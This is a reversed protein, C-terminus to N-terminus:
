GCVSISEVFVWNDHFAPGGDPSVRDAPALANLPLKEPFDDAIHNAECLCLGQPVDETIWARMTLSARDNWVKVTADQDIERAKADLPHIWLQPQGRKKRISEVGVLSSNLVELAPPAMFHLARDKGVMVTDRVNVPWHDPLGPMAADSWNPFFHFKGDAQPFGQRFYRRDEPPTFDLWREPWRSVPPLGSASLVERIMRQSNWYFPADEYGMALAIQNVVDNNCRAEGAAPLVPETYQLTYQGYSKYLDYTELFTPAPLIIDALRATDTMVQEHVVLFLDERALGRVVGGADPCSAAPNANFVLMAQVPPDLRADQLLTALQSMDLIRTPTQMWQPQKVPTDKIPFTDGTALLAGGGLRRWAGRVAPLCSIAHINVAGNNQRSMGLGIRIFPAKAKGYELALQRISEAELGTIAAAWQPTRSQLHEEVQPSYDTFQGLYERDLLGEALMVQMMAVALAGDTGPKPAVHWDALRATHNRYPDIVVLKAGQKRAAKIHHMLTIHTAAANIGWLIIFDSHIVDAPSPGTALGVGAQWGAFGISYCINRDLRSFGARHILRDIAPRQILGMTGGYYYPFVAQPGYRDMTELLRRAITQLAEEWSIPRFEGQGKSGVRQLPTEIRPGHQLESYRSVKGCNVGQTFPHHRDGSLRLLRQNEVHAVLACAGPCDLSCTTKFTQIAM